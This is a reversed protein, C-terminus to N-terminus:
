YELIARKTFQKLEPVPIEPIMYVMGRDDVRERDKENITYIEALHSKLSETLESFQTQIQHAQEMMNRRVLGEVLSEADSVTMNLRNVLRGTSRILYEEEYITGKKGRARKREERRRNKATRRSSTTRSSRSSSRSSKSSSRGTYRTFISSRLTSETPAVSVNDANEANEANGNYFAFPDVQKKERLERLRKLQAEAQSKCEALLQAIEGFQKGLSPDVVDKLLEPHGQEHCLMMAEAFQCEKCYLRIAEELNNLHKQEIYGAASYEHHDKLNEVLQEAIDHRKEESFEPKMVISLAQRWNRGSVYDELAFEYNGLRDYALAAESYREASHLYNAYLELVGNFRKTDYRYLALGKGYLKHDVIYESIEKEIGSDEEPTIKVLSELGKEYKKLYTDVMFQRRHPKQINIKQLFPLYEKPDKQSQQAIVLALPIDYIALSEDYLKNVDLFVCLHKVSREILAANGLSGVLKLAKDTKPPRQCAYATLVSQLYKSRYKPKLLVASVADCIKRIKEPGTTDAEEITLHELKDAVDTQSASTERYKTKSVDEELLCSLFLDLYEVSGLQEVFLAVNGFFLKPDYDHLIDLAIRNTRCILFADRYRKQEIAKRVRSLVMIRPYITELNGRPAELTVSSQSPISTVLWSGREIARIREDYHPVATSQGNEPDESEENEEPEKTPRELPQTEDLLSANDKLHMFELEHQATTYLLYSDTALISTVGPCILRKGVFLKGAASLGFVVYQDGIKCVEYDVCFRPFQGIISKDEVMRVSGDVEEYIAHEFATDSKILVVSLSTHISKVMKPANIDTLDVETIYCGAGLGNKQSDCLVWATKTGTVCVQRPFDGNDECLESRAIKGTVELMGVSKGLSIHAIVLSDNTLICYIESKQSCGIDVISAGVDVDRLSMPPPVHAGALPTLMCVNGDTVAIAGVGDTIEAPGRCIYRGLDVVVVSNATGIMLRLPKEPHFKVFLPTLKGLNDVRLEQKLYWHYNKSTWLQVRDELLVALTESNASWALSKILTGAPLRTDFEGHRLGNRELFVVYLHEVPTPPNEPADASPDIDDTVMEVEMRRQVAAILAGQPKWSVVGELGDIPESSSQLQGERSYVRVVRRRTSDSQPSVDISCVAFYKCDGRWTISDHETDYQTMVGYEAEKVTPDHLIAHDSDLNLGAHKLALRERAELKRAGRGRFQTEKKGWGVSVQTTMELDQPQLKTESIPEFTRSLVVVTKEGTLLSLSEEDPSWSAATIGSDISGEIQVTTQDPDNSNPVYNATVIDGSQFVFILQTLDAFHAFSVIKDGLKVPFSALISIQGDKTFQQVEITDSELSGLVVTVSDTIVDFSSTLLSLDPYTRSEVPISGRNLIRLNRM